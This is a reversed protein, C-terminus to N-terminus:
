LKVLAGACCQDGHHLLAHHTGACCSRVSQQYFVPASPSKFANSALWVATRRHQTQLAKNHFGVSTRSGLFDAVGNMWHTVKLSCFILSFILFAQVALCLAFLLCFCLFQLLGLNVGLILLFDLRGFFYFSICFFSLFTFSLFNHFKFFNCFMMASTNFMSGFSSIVM